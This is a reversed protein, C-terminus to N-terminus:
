TPCIPPLVRFGNPLWLAHAAHATGNPSAEAAVAQPETRPELIERRANKLWNRLEAEGVDSPPPVRKSRALVGNFISDVLRVHRQDGHHNWSRTRPDDLLFFTVAEINDILLMEQYINTALYVDYTDGRYQRTEGLHTAIEDLCINSVDIIRTTHVGRGKAWGLTAKFYVDVADDVLRSFAWVGKVSAHAKWQLGYALKLAADAHVFHSREKTSLTKFLLETVFFFGVVFVLCLIGAGVMELVGRHGRTSYLGAFAAFAAVTLALGFVYGALKSLVDDWHPLQDGDASARKFYPEVQLLTPYKDKLNDCLAAFTM